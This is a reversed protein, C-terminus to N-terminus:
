ARWFVELARWFHWRCFVALVELIGCGGFCQLCEELIGCGELVDDGFIGCGELINGCGELIGCGELFAADRM